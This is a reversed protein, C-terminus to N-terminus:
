VVEILFSYANVIYIRLCCEKGRGAFLRSHMSIPVFFTIRDFEKHSSSKKASKKQLVSLRLNTEMRIYIHLNSSGERVHLMGKRKYCLCFKVNAIQRILNRLM